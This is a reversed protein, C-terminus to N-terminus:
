VSPKSNQPQESPPGFAGPYKERMEKRQAEMAERHQKMEDRLGEEFKKMAAHKQDENLSSDNLIKERGAQAKKQLNQMFEATAKFQREMQSLIKQKQEATLRPNNEIHEKMRALREKIEASLKEGMEARHKQIAAKRQDEPLGKISERFAKEAERYKERIEGGGDPGGAQVGLGQNHYKHEPLTPASNTTDQARGAMNFALCVSAMLGLTKRTNELLKM